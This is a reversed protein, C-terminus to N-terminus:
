VFRDSSDNLSDTHEECVNRLTLRGHSSNEVWGNFTSTQMHIRGLLQLLVLFVANKDVSTFWDVALRIDQVQFELKEDVGFALHDAFQSSLVGM